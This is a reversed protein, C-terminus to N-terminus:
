KLRLSWLFVPVVALDFLLWGFGFPPYPEGKMIHRRPNDRAYIIEAQGGGVLKEIVDRTLFLSFLSESGDSATAKVYFDHQNDSWGSYNPVRETSSARTITAAVGHSSLQLRDAVQRIFALFCVLICVLLWARFSWARFLGVSTRPEDAPITARREPAPRAPGPTAAAGPRQPSSGDQASPSRQPLPKEQAPTGCTLPRGDRPTVKKGSYARQGLVQARLWEDEAISKKVAALRSLDSTLLDAILPRFNGWRGMQKPGLELDRAIGQDKHSYANVALLRTGDQWANANAISSDFKLLVICDLEDTYAAVIGQDADIVVAARCDGGQLQEAILQLWQSRNAADQPRAESFLQPQLARLKVPSVTMVGPNGARTNPDLLPTRASENSAAGPSGVPNQPAAKVAAQRLRALQGNDPYDAVYFRAPIDGTERMLDGIVPMARSWEIVVADAADGQPDVLSLLETKPLLAAVGKSWACASRLPTGDPGRGVMYNAVFLNRGQQKSREDLLQKQSTYAQGEAILRLSHLKAAQAPPEFNTWKGEVLRMMLPSMSRPQSLAHEARRVVLAIGADDQDGTLLLKDRGPVMVVPAGRTAHRQLVETLLLRAPDHDDNWASEYTGPALEKMPKASLARLNDLAIAFSEAESLKWTSLHNTCVRLINVSTDYGLQIELSDCLPRYVLGPANKDSLVIAQGRDAANRILPLLHPRVEDAAEPIRQQLVSMAGQRLRDPRLAASEQLWERYLNDLNVIQGASSGALDPNSFTLRGTSEDWDWRRNDGLARLQQMFLTAYDTRTAISSTSM